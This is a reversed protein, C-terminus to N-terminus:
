SKFAQKLRDQAAQDLPDGAGPNTPGGPNESYAPDDFANPVIIPLRERALEGSAVYWIFLAVLGIGTHFLVSIAWPM